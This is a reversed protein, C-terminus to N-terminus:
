KSANGNIDLWEEKTTHHEINDNKAIEARLEGLTGWGEADVDYKHITEENRQHVWVFTDDSLDHYTDVVAALVERVVDEVFRPNAHAKNVIFLEDPRKLLAYNESSMASEVLAILDGADIEQNTGLMLTARGRQNHTALPTVSLMKEIDEQPFGEEQLRVRAFSHIMDQACPCAVMGEVEVGVLRKSGEQTAVAHALLGYVEQTRRGSVPTWKQLPYATHIHVEARAVKQREVIAQAVAEALVEIKPWSNSAMEELVEELVDSFRSMHVGAQTTALDAYLDFTADFWRQSGENGLLLSKRIGVVGARGLRVHVAPRGSQIDRELPIRLNPALRTVGDQVIANLLEQISQGSAPDIVDPAIEALPVLVFAREAMRPHPVTLEEQEIRLDDYLLIDIDIPRPGNRFTQKRGIAAEIAKAYKLLDYASLWTKGSCALNLFRPQDAYGVPETEYVSSVTDIDVVERLRQLATALNGRRDGLNSGLALYVSHTAGPTNKAPFLPSLATDLSM